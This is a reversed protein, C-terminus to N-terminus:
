APEEVDRITYWGDHELAELVSRAATERTLFLGAYPRKGTPCPRFRLISVPVRGGMGYAALLTEAAVKSLSYSLDARHHDDMKPLKDMHKHYRDVANSSGVFLDDKDWPFDIHAGYFATSSAYVLRKTEATMAAVDAVVKTGVVNAEWYQDWTFRPSPHPIAALHVCVDCRQMARALAARDHIDSGGRLDYGVVEHGERVLAEVVASGIWGDSGTVLVKM